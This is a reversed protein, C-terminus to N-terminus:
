RRSRAAERSVGSYAAYARVNVYYTTNLALGTPPTGATFRVTSGVVANTTSSGTIRDNTKDSTSVTRTTGGGLSSSTAPAGCVKCHRYTVGASSTQIQDPMYNYNMSGSDDLIYMLNPLVATSPAQALPVDALQAIQASAGIPALATFTGLLSGAVLAIFSRRFTKHIRM